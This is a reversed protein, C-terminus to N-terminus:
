RTQSMILLVEGPKETPVMSVFHHGKAIQEELFCAVESETVRSTYQKMALRPLHRILSDALNQGRVTDWFTMM